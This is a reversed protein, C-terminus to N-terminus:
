SAAPPGAEPDPAPLPRTRIFQWVGAVLGLVIAALRTPHLLRRATVWNSAAWLLAHGTAQAGETCRNRKVFVFTNRIQFYCVRAGGLFERSSASGEHQAEAREVQLLTWGVRRLRHLLDTEEYYLFYEPYFSGVRTLAAARLLLVAGSLWTAARPGVALRAGGPQAVPDHMERILPGAAAAIPAADLAAVLTALCDPRLVVDPNMVLVYPLGSRIAAAIGQNAAAGYGVNRKNRVVEVEPFRAAALDASGDRSANDVVMVRAPAPEQEFLSRLCAPLCRASNYSVVVCLVPAPIPLEGAALGRDCV